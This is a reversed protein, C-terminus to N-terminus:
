LPGAPMKVSAIYTGPQFASPPMPTNSTSRKFSSLNLSASMSWIILIPRNLALSFVDEAM